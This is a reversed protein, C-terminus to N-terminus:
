IEMRTQHPHPWAVKITDLSLGTVLGITFGEKIYQATLGDMLEITLIGDKLEGYGIVQGEHKIPIHGIVSGPVHSPRTSNHQESM